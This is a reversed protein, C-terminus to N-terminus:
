KYQCKSTLKFTGTADYYTGTPIYCGTTSTQGPAATTGYITAHLSSEGFVGSWSPCRSCGSSATTPNGYYGTACRYITSTSCVSTSSNWSHKTCTQVNNTTGTVIYDINNGCCIEQAASCASAIPKGSTVCNCVKDHLAQLRGGSFECKGTSKYNNVIALYETNVEQLCETRNEALANGVDLITIVAISTTIINKM